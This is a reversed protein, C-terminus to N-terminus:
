RRPALRRFQEAGIVAIPQGERLRERVGYRTLMEATGPRASPEGLVAVTTTDTVSRQV